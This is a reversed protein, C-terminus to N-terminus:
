FDELVRVQSILSKARHTDISPFKKIVAKVIQCTKCESDAMLWLRILKKAEAWIPDTQRNRTKRIVPAKPDTSPVYDAALVVEGRQNIFLWPIQEGLQAYGIMARAMEVPVRPWISAVMEALFQTESEPYQSINSEIYARVTTTSKFSQLPTM